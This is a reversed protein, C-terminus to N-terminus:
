APFIRQYVGPSGTEHVMHPRIESNWVPTVMTRWGDWGPSESVAVSEMEHVTMYKPQGEVAEFRRNRLYGPIKYCEPLRETNYAHNFKADLEPPVSMRGVLLTPSMAAESTESSLEDPFIMSYLNRIYNQGVVSPSMRQSWETPNEHHYRWADSHFTEAQDLEYCALYKPGGQQAEYRAASLVGPISLREPIHEENYWRNFEEEVEQPVDTFVMLLGRGKTVAM